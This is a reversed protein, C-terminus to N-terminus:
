YPAIEIQDYDAYRDLYCYLEHNVIRKLFRDIFSLLYYDEETVINVKMYDNSKRWGMTTRTPVLKDKDNQVTWGIACNYRKLDEFLKSRELYDFKSLIIM